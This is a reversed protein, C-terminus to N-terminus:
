VLGDGAGVVQGVVEVGGRFGGDGGDYGMGM